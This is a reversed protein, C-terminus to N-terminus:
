LQDFPLFSVELTNTSVETILILDTGYAFARRPTGPHYTASLINFGADLVVIESTDGVQEILYYNGSYFVLDTFALGFSNLYSLDNTSFFLGSGIVVASEDPLLRIPSTLTYDGHYPSDIEPGLTGNNVDIDVMNIDSPSVGSNIFFLRSLGPAFVLCRATDRWDDSDVRAGTARHYLAQTDWAGSGDITFLYGGTVVMSSVNAPASAFFSATTTALDFEEIRGGSYALYASVGAPDIAMTTATLSGIMPTLLSQSDADYRQIRNNAEDLFYIIGNAMDCETFDFALADGPSGSNDLTGEINISGTGIISPCNDFNRYLVIHANAAQNAAVDVIATGEYVILGNSDYAGVWVERNLGVPVDAIIGSITETGVNLAVPGIQNMDPGTVIAEASAVGCEDGTLPISMTVLGGRSSTSDGCSAILLLLGSAALLTRVSM